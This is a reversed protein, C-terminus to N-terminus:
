FLEDHVRHSIQGCHSNFSILQPSLQRPNVKLDASKNSNILHAQNVTEVPALVSLKQM